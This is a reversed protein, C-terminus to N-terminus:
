QDPTNIMIGAVQQLRDYFQERIPGELGIDDMAERMCALWATARTPTIEFPMHRARMAPPGFEDSYLTPGGTFQTLFMKQKRKIEEMDGEFLPSLIPNAYVKPYFSNVLKQIIEEGGLMEYPTEFNM